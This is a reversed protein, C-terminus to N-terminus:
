DRNFLRSKRTMTYQGDSLSITCGEIKLLEIIRYAQRVSCGCASAIAYITCGELLYRQAAQQQQNLRKARDMQNTM